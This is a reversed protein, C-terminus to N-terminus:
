KWISGTGDGHNVGDYSSNKLLRKVALNWIVKMVFTGGVFWAGLVIISDEM